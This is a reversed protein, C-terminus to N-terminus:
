EWSKWKDLIPEYRFRIGNRRLQDKIIISINTADGYIKKQKLDFITKKNNKNKIDITDNLNDFIIEENNYYDTIRSKIQKELINWIEQKEIKSLKRPYYKEKIVVAPSGMALSGNPIDRNILSRAGVVVNSGIIVSPNVWANPLWVNDGITVEGWQMPAGLNLCDLYCGHTFIKTEVGVGVEHGVTIGRAINLQSNVGMHFWDGAKLFAERDFCSGGGITAYRDIFAERGIKVCHGEIVVDKNIISYAGIYGNKVNITVSSHIKCTPHIIFTM